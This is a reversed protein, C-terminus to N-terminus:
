DETTSRNVFEIVVQGERLGHGAFAASAAAQRDVGTFDLTIELALHNGRNGLISEMIRREIKV